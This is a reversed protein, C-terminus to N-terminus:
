TQVNNLSIRLKMTASSAHALTSFVMEGTQKHLDMQDDPHVQKTDFVIISMKYDVIEKPQPV